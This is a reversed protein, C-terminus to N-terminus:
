IIRGDQKTYLFITTPEAQFLISGLDTFGLRNPYGGLYPKLLKEGEQQAAKESPAIVIVVAIPFPEQLKRIEARVMRCERMSILM